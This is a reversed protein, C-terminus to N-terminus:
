AVARDLGRKRARRTVFLASVGGDGGVRLIDSSMMDMGTNSTALARMVLGSRQTDAILGLSNYGVLGAHDRSATLRRSFM